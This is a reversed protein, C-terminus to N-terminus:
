CKEANLNKLCSFSFPRKGVTSFLLDAFEGLYAKLPIVIISSIIIDDDNEDDDDDDDNDM